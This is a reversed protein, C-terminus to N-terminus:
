PLERELIVGVRRYNTLKREWGNRGALRVKVCDNAKAYEEVQKCLHLWDEMHMGGGVTLHCVRGTQSPWFRSTMAAIVFHGQKVAWLQLDGAKAAAITYEINLDEGCALMGEALWREVLPWVDDIVSRDLPVLQVPLGLMTHNGNVHLNM